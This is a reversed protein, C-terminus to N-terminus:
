IRTALKSEALDVWMSDSAVLSRTGRENVGPVITTKVWTLRDITFGREGSYESWRHQANKAADALNESFFGHALTVHPHYPWLERCSACGANLLGHLTEVALYGKSLAVYVVQSALFTEVDGLGVDVPSSAAIAPQLEAWAQEWTSSLLRPPLLTLHPKGLFHPDLDRRIRSLFESLAEPLYAVLAFLEIAKGSDGDSASDGSTSGGDNRGITVVSGDM